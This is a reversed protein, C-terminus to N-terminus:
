RIVSASKADQKDRSHKILQASDFSDFTEFMGYVDPKTGTFLEFAQAAQYVAMGSGPLIKCGKERAARLLETELPFYVIDAVWLKNFLLELPFASGPTKAMGVPTANVVGDLNSPLSTLDWLVEIDHTNAIRSSLKDALKEANTQNVDYLFLNKVGRELLANAVAVGAGGTGLLLVNERRVDGMGTRFSEAFGWMDTNLGIRKGNMFVVTNVADVAKATESLVDLYQMVEKKFPFTINLGIFGCVEAARIIESLSLSPGPIQDIDLKQYSYKIGLRAAEAMHVSPTRSLQIGSGILGVLTAREPEIASRAYDAIELELKTLM